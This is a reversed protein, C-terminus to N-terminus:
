VVAVLEGLRRLRRLEVREEPLVRGGALRGDRGVVVLGVLVAGALVATRAASAGVLLEVRAVVFLRRLVRVLQLRGRRVALLAGVRALLATESTASISRIREIWAASRSRPPLSRPPRMTRGLPSSAATTRARGKATVEISVTTSPTWKESAVWLGASTPQFASAVASDSTAAM